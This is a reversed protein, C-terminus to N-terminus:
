VREAFYKKYPQGGGILMGGDVDVNTGTCMRGSSGAFFLIAEAVDEAEVWDGLPIVSPDLSSSATLPTRTPGPCVANVRIKRIALEYAAHRTFGLLGSKSATYEVGAHYSMHKAALSAVNVIAGGGRETMSEIVARACLFCATLNMDIGAQWDELTMSPITARVRAGGANNVLIDVGGWLEIVREVATAVANESTVDVELALVSAGLTNAIEALKEKNLDFVAVRAGENVLKTATAAGIGSAGGTVIAVKQEFKKM